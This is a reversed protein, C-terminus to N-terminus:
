VVGGIDDAARVDEVQYDSAGASLAIGIQSAEPGLERVQGDVAEAFPGGETAQNYSQEFAAGYKDDGWPRSSEISQIEQLLGSLREAFGEAQGSFQVARARLGDVGETLEVWGM